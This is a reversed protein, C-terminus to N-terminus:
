TKFITRQRSLTSQCKLTLNKQTKLFGSPTINQLKMLHRTSPLAQRKDEGTDGDSTLHGVDTINMAGNISYGNYKLVRRLTDMFIYARLNGIHAYSYVTPGCSYMRATKGDAPEFIEKTRSLTNYFKIM